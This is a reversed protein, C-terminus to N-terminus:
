LKRLEVLVCEHYVLGIELKEAKNIIEETFTGPQFWIFPVNKEVALDLAPESFKAGVVVSVCDVDVPLAKLDSYCKEGEIEDYRPNVPYVEYGHAKLAKFIKNGFKDPNTNAGVVAWKKGKKLMANMLREM